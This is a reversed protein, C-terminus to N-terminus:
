NEVFKSIYLSAQAAEEHRFEAVMAGVASPKPGIRKPRM